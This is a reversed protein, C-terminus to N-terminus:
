NGVDTGNLVVIYLPRKCYGLKQTEIIKQYFSETRCVKGCFKGIKRHIFFNIRLEQM